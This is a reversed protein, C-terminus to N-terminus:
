NKSKYTYLDDQSTVVEGSYYSVVVKVRDSTAPTSSGQFVHETGIKPEKGFNFVEIKGDDARYLTVEIDKVQNTGKGGAYTVTITPKNSDRGVQILVAKGEPFADTKGPTLSFGPDTSPTAEVTPTATPTPPQTDSGTCGAALVFVALFLVCVTVIKFNM